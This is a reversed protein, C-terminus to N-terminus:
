HDFVLIVTKPLKLFPDVMKLFFILFYFIEQHVKRDRLKCM